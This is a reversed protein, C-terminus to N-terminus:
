RSAAKRGQLSRGIIRRAEAVRWKVTGTPIKLMQAIEDYTHEGSTALLFTDKLKPALRGIARQIRRALDRSLAHEEPNPQSGAMVEVPHEEEFGGRPSTRVWWLRRVRRRDLAKRWVIALLWTRFTSDGRFGSLKQWATVLADQAADEADARAGLAALATRFVVREHLGILEGFAQRDGLRAAEILALVRPDERSAARPQDNSEVFTLFDAVAATV